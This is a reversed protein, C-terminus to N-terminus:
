SDKNQISREDEEMFVVRVGVNPQIRRDLQDFGVRVKVTAKQRNATPVISIVRSPIRWDPYAELVAEAKQGPRVRSIYAENVDVEIELSKMDVITAIGTRTFGDGASVPSIIEGPQANKSVVVGSFPARIVFDNLSRKVQELERRAVDIKAHGTNLQALLVEVKGEAETLISQGVFSKSELSSLRNFNRRAEALQVEIEPLAVTALQLRSEALSVESRIAADDLRALVQGKEVRSGEEVLIDQIKSTVNSSVTSIRRAVVYGSANLVTTQKGEATTTESDIAASSTVELQQKPESGLLGTFVERQYMQQIGQGLYLIGGTTLLLTFFIVALWVKLSRNGNTTLASENEKTFPVVEDGSGSGNLIKLANKDLM